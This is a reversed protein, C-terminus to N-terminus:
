GGGRAVSGVGGMGGVLLIWHPIQLHFLWSDVKRTTHDAVLQNFERLRLLLIIILHYQGPLNASILGLPNQLHYKIVALWAGRVM